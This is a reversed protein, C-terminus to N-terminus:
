GRSKSNQKIKKHNSEIDNKQKKRRSALIGGIKGTEKATLSKWGSTMVKDFVGLEKAIEYKILEEQTLKNLDIKKEKKPKKENCGMCTRLPIKKM